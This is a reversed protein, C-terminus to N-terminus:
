AADKMQYDHFIIGRSPDGVKCDRVWVKKGSKKMHRWHGRRDHLRPSAHTGGQHEGKPSRPEIVVTKWDFFPVKGHRLRKIHNSRKTPAYSIGGNNLSDLLNAIVAITTDVSQKDKGDLDDPDIERVKKGELTFYVVKIEGDDVRYYFDPLRTINGTKVSKLFTHCVIGDVKIPPASSLLVMVKAIPEIATQCVFATYKFPLPNELVASSMSISEPVTSGDFWMLDAPDVSGRSERYIDAVFETILPTM